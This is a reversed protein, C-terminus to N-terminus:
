LQGSPFSPISPFSLFGWISQAFWVCVPYCSRSMRFFLLLLLVLQQKQHHRKESEACFLNCLPKHNRRSWPSCCDVRSACVCVRKLQHCFALECTFFGRAPVEVEWCFEKTNFTKPVFFQRHNSRKCEVEVLKGRIQNSGVLELNFSRIIVRGQVFCHTMAFCFEVKRFKYTSFQVEIARTINRWHM